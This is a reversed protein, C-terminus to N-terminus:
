AAREQQAAEIRRRAIECYTPDREILIARRGTNLAAVGTTGSGAFCDLVVAGPRSSTRIIHEMLALPKECPHKGPYSSVTSFDWM